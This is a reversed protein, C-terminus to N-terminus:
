PNNEMTSRARLAAATVARATRGLEDDGVARGAGKLPDSIGYSEGDNPVIYASGYASAIVVNHPRGNPYGVLTMASDLSATYAPASRVRDPAPQNFESARWAGMDGYRGREFGFPGGCEAETPALGLAEWIDGDTKRCPGDLAEVRSALENLDTM